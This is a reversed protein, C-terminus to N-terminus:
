IKKKKDKVLKSIKSNWWLPKFKQSIRVSKLPICERTINDLNSKFIDWMENCNKNIFKESWQIKSLKERLLNYDGKSFDL